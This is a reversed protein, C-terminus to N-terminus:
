CETKGTDLNHRGTGLLTCALAKGEERMGLVRMVHDMQLVICVLVMCRIQLISELMHTEMEASVCIFMESIHPILLDLLLFLKETSFLEM